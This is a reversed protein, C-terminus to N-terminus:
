YIVCKGTFLSTTTITCNDEDDYHITVSSTVRNNSSDIVELKPYQFKKKHNISWTNVPTSQVYISPEEPNTPTPSPTTNGGGFVLITVTYKEPVDSTFHIHTDDLVTYDIGKCMKVGERLVWMEGKSSDPTVFETQPTTRVDSPYEVFQPALYKNILENIEYSSYTTQTSIDRDNILSSADIPTNSMKFFRSM